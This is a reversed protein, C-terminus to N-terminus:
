SSTSSGPRGCRRSSTPPSPTPSPSSPPPPPPPLPPPPHPPRPSRLPSAPSPATRYHPLVSLLIPPHTRGRTRRARARARARTPGARAREEDTTPRPPARARAEWTSVKEAYTRLVARARGYLGRQKMVADIAARTDSLSAMGVHLSHRRQSKRFDGFRCGCESLAGTLSGARQKRDIVTEKVRDLPRAARYGPPAHRSFLFLHPELRVEDRSRLERLEGEHGQGGNRCTDGGLLGVLHV